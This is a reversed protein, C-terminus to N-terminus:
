CSFCVQGCNNRSAHASVARTVASMPVRCTSRAVSSLAILLAAIDQGWANETTLLLAATASRSAAHASMHACNLFRAGTRLAAYLKWFWRNSLAALANPSARVTVAYILRCKM